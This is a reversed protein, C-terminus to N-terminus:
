GYDSNSLSLSLSLSRSFLSTKKFNSQMCEFFLATNKHTKKENERNTKYNASKKEVM